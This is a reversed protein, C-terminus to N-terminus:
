NCNTSANLSKLLQMAAQPITLSQDRVAQEMEQVLAKIAPNGTLRSMLQHEVTSWLWRVRQNERRAEFEGSEILQWRHERVLEWLEDLGNGELASLTIARPKWSGSAQLISLARQYATRAHAAAQQQAGDAKNVAIIDALELVGKKIGQLEDGAGPLMLVLYCDVMDAVVTESQGVGVTEVLIVDYGAAECLLMSERTVRTVGGLTGSTPSPRIYAETELALAPM